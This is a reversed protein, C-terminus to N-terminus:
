SFFFSFFVKDGQGARPSQYEERRIVEDKLAAMLIARFVGTEFKVLIADPTAWPFYLECLHTIEVIDPLAQTRSIAQLEKHSSTLPSIYLHIIDPSPFDNPITAALAQHQSGM